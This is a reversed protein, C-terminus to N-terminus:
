VYAPKKCLSILSITVKGITFLAPNLVRIYRGQQIEKGGFRAKFERVGYIKDPQGAGMFDLMQINNILGYEIAAWTAMVSPYLNKYATDLGCIYFEYIFEKNQIVCMIGGIIKDHYYVLLYKGVDKEFFAKFFEWPFLPKKIKKRYLDSLIEYFSLVEELSNAEGWRIGANKAKKIQRLRGSSINKIVQEKNNINLHFNLWPVYNWGCTKFIEQYDIYDKFNRTELYILENKYYQNISSLLLEASEKSGLLPGGYIIGRKSFFRKYGKEKQITIVALSKIINEKLVAFVKAKYGDISNILDYFPKDQFPTSFSSNRLFTKWELTDIEDDKHIIFKDEM